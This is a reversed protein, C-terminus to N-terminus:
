RIDTVDELFFINNSDDFDFIFKRGGANVLYLPESLDWSCIYWYYDLEARNLKRIEYSEKGVWLSDLMLLMSYVGTEGRVIAGENRVAKGGSPITFEVRQTPSRSIIDYARLYAWMHPAVIISDAIVEHRDQDGKLLKSIYELAKNNQVPAAKTYVIGKPIEPIDSNNIKIEAQAYIIPIGFFLLIASLCVPKM